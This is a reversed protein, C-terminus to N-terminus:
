DGGMSPGEGIGIRCAAGINRAGEGVFSPKLKCREYRLPAECIMRGFSLSFVTEISGGVDRLEGRCLDILPSSDCFARCPLVALKLEISDPEDLLFGERAANSVRAIVGSCGSAFRAFTVELGSCCALAGGDARDAEGSCSSGSLSICGEECERCFEIGEGSANETGCLGDFGVQGGCFIGSDAIFARTSRFICSRSILLELKIAM